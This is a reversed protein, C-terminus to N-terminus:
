NKQWLKIEEAFSPPLFDIGIEGKDVEGKKVGAFPIPGDFSHFLNVDDDTPFGAVFEKGRFCIDNKINM